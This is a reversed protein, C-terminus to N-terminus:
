RIYAHLQRKQMGEQMGEKMGWLREQPYNNINKKKKGQKVEWTRPNVVSLFTQLFQFNFELRANAETVIPFGSFVM